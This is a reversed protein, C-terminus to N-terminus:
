YFVNSRYTIKPDVQLDFYTQLAEQFEQQNQISREQRKSGNVQILHRDTLTIRGQPTVRTCFRKQALLSDFSYQHFNCREQFDLLSRSNLTFRFQPIWLGAGDRMGMEWYPDQQRLGYPTDTNLDPTSLCLPDSFTSGFGVDALWSEELTVQLLLHDYEPSYSHDARAVQASLYTVKFGLSLLLSGFLGNLEYCIGGRQRCVIKEFWSNPDMMIPIRSHIDLNEFPIALLHHSHLARLTDLSLNPDKHFRLRQLYASVQM